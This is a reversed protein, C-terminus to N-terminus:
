LQAPPNYAPGRPPAVSGPREISSPGAREVGYRALFMEVAEAVGSSIAAATPRETLNLVLAFHQHSRCLSMFQVAALACDAPNIKGLVKARQFYDELRGVGVAPGAAYFVRGLDPTRHAEAVIIQFMRVAWPSFLHDLYTEGFRSLVEAVPPDDPLDYLGVAFRACQHRICAEFLAEKSTFYNYLTGKSGGLRTAIASMSAAAFGEANFVEQAVGLIVERRQDHRTSVPTSTAMAGSSPQEPTSM